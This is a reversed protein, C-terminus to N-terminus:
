INLRITKVTLMILQKEINRTAEIYLISSVADIIKSYRM